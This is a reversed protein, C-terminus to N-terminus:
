KKNGKFHQMQLMPQLDILQFYTGPQFDNTQRVAHKRKHAFPPRLRWRWFDSQLHGDRETFWTCLPVNECKL